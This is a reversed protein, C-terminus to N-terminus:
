ANNRGQAQPTNPQTSQALGLHILRQLMRQAAIARHSIRNKESPPLQASTRQYDPPLLLLPDYGFGHSGRPVNPPTGIRGPLEGQTTALIQQHPGPTALAMTCVFRASRLENPINALHELLTANNRDDRQQRTAGDDHGLTAYHSSIVGPAGNLADVVLGSDDALANHGTAQAYALAKIKANQAFTTGTEAPEPLPSGPLDDLGLLRIGAPALIARLELLKHPNATALVITTM